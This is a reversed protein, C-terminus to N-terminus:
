RIFRRHCITRSSRHGTRRLLSARRVPQTCRCRSTSVCNAASPPYNTGSRSASPVTLYLTRRLPGSTLIGILTRTPRPVEAAAALPPSYPLFRIVAAAIFCGAALVLAATMPSAWASVAAVVTPGETGGIGYTAM